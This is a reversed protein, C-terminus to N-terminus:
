VGDQCRERYREDLYLHHLRELEDLNVQMDRLYVHDGLHRDFLSMMFDLDQASCTFRCNSFRVLVPLLRTENHLALVRAEHERVFGYNREISRVVLTLDTM